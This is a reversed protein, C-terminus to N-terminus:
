PEFIVGKTLIFCGFPRMDSTHIVAFAANARRYFDQRELSGTTAGPPMANHIIEFAQDHVPGTEDPANDIEMRLACHDGFPDLPMVPTVLAIARPADFGPLAIVEGWMTRAATSTAPFNADAVVIEDGHGMRMLCDLLDPPMHPDIGTLM